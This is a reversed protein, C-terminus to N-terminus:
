GTPKSGVGFFVLLRRQDSRRRCHLRGGRRGPCLRRPSPQARLSSYTNAPLVPFRVSVLLEDDALDTSFVGTFFDVADIVPHRTILPRCVRRRAGVCGGATRSSPRRSFWAAASLAEIESRETGLTPCRRSFHCPLPALQSREVAAHTVRCGIELMPGNLQIQDYGSMRGIDIFRRLGSTTDGHGPALESGALVKADGDFEHFYRLQKM